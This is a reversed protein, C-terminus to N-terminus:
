LLLRLLVMMVQDCLGVYLGIMVVSVIVVVTSEMLEQRTPWSTKRSEAIVNTVFAIAAGVMENLKGM